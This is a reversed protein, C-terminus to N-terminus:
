DQNEPAIYVVSNKNFYHAIAPNPYSAPDDEIDVATNGKHRYPIYNIEVDTEVSEAISDYMARQNYSTDMIEGSKLNDFIKVSVSESSGSLLSPILVAAVLLPCLKKCLVPLLNSNGWLKIIIINGALFSLFIWSIVLSIDHLFLCRNPLDNNHASYGFVVPFITIVPLLLLGFISVAKSAKVHKSGACSGLILAIIELVPFTANSHLWASEQVTIIFSDIVSKFLNIGDNKMTSQRVFNGPALANILSLILAFGFMILFGKNPKGNVLRDLVVILLLFWMGFGTMELCGGAMIVIFIGSFIIYVANKSDAWKLLLCIGFEMGILPLMYAIAGTYWLYIDFYERYSILPFLVLAFFYIPVVDLKFHKILSRVFFFLGGVSLLDLFVLIARLARYSYWNLPNILFQIFDTAFNGDWNKWSWATMRFATKVLEAISAKSGYCLLAFSFDDTRFTALSSARLLPLVAAIVIIWIILKFIGAYELRKM